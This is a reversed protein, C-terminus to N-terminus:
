FPHRKKNKSFNNTNQFFPNKNNRNSKGFHWKIILYIHYIYRNFSGHYGATPELRVTYSDHNIRDLIADTIPTETYKKYWGAPAFQSCFNIFATKKRYYGKERTTQSQVKIIDSWDNSRGTLPV